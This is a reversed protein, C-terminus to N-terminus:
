AAQKAMSGQGLASAFSAIAKGMNATQQQDVQLLKTYIQSSLNIENAGAAFLQEGEQAVAILANQDAQALEQALASNQSPDTSQGSAAHNSIIRAKAAAKAQDVAAQLGAPLTGTQLFNMFQQGQATLQTAQANLQQQEPLQKQGQLM